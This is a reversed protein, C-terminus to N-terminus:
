QRQGTRPLESKQVTVISQTYLNFHHTSDKAVFYDSHRMRMEVTKSVGPQQSRKESVTRRLVRPSSAFIISRTTDSATVNTTSPRLSAFLVMSAAISVTQWFLKYRPENLRGRRDFRPAVAALLTSPRAQAIDSREGWVIAPSPTSDSPMSASERRAVVM